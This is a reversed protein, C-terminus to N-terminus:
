PSSCSPAGADDGELVAQVSEPNKGQVQVKGTDFVNVRQGSQLKMFHCHQGRGEEVVIYGEAELKAKVDEVEAM